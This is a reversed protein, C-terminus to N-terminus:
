ALTYDDSSGTSSSNSSTGLGSTLNMLRPAVNEEVFDGVAKIMLGQGMRKPVGKTYRHLGFGALGVAINGTLAGKTLTNLLAEAGGAVGAGAGMWLLETTKSMRKGGSRRYKKRPMTKVSRKKITKKTKINSISTRRKSAKYAKWGKSFGMKAYKKPLGAM